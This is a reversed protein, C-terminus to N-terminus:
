YAHPRHTGLIFTCQFAVSNLDRNQFFHTVSDNGQRESHSFELRLRTFDSQYFTLYPVVAWEKDRADGPIEVYDYRAGSAWRKDWQYEVFSYMGFKKENGDGIVIDTVDPDTAQRQRDM